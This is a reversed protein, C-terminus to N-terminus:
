SSDAFFDNSKINDLHINNVNNKWIKKDWLSLFRGCRPRRLKKKLNSKFYKITENTMKKTLSFFYHFINIM